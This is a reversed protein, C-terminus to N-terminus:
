ALINHGIQFSDSGKNLDPHWYEAATSFGSADNGVYVLKDLLSGFYFAYAQTAACVTKNGVMEVSAHHGNVIQFGATACDEAFCGSFLVQTVATSYTTVQFGIVSNIAFCGVVAVGETCKYGVLFGAITCNYATCSTIALGYGLQGHFGYGCANAHCGFAQARRMLNFGYTAGHVTCGIVKVAQAGGCAFGVSKINTALCNSIIIYLPDRWSMSVGKYMQDFRCDEIISYGVAGYGAPFQIGVNATHAVNNSGVLHLNTFRTRYVGVPISIIAFDGNGTLTAGQAFELEIDSAWQIAYGSGADTCVHAGPVVIIKGGTAGLATIAAQIKAGMNAGAFQDAFVIARGDAGGIGAPNEIDYGGMDLDGTMAVSGDAMLIPVGDTDSLPPEKDAHYKKYLAHNTANAWLAIDGWITPDQWKGLGSM